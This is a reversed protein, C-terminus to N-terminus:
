RSRNVAVVRRQGLWYYYWNRCMSCSGRRLSRFLLSFFIRRYRPILRDPPPIKHMQLISLSLACQFLYKISSMKKTRKSRNSLHELALLHINKCLVLSDSMLDFCGSFSFCFFSLCLRLIRIDSAISEVFNYGLSSFAISKMTIIYYSSCLSIQAFSFFVFIWQFVHYALLANLAFFFLLLTHFEALAKSNSVAWCHLIVFLFALNNLDRCLKDVICITCMELIHAFM